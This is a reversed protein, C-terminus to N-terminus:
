TPSETSGARGLLFGWLRRSQAFFDLQLMYLAPVLFLTIVTAFVIGFSLSIAMPIVYQAQLSGELMIPMLGAATTVSTLVIARFRKTGSEIIAQKLPTGAELANNVFSVMILSDNVVVGALAILGFLSFMSVSEGMILHGLVAGIAGFPIVSMIVLPQSYSRLPIAILAYILCLAAISALALNGVFDAEERSAGELGYSVSPFRALLEPMYDESISKIIKAPEVIEPDIDASVTVTRKRNLRTITSYGKGFSMEAVSEFPVEDGEPTRIRMNELDAISRRETIPYRVMVKLEDKGRQIRQAEEGYFAQRVQRGLASITLGLAEAAPKIRLRIEEGGSTSSNRIDYIGQYEALKTELEAAAKELAVNDSGSLEFSLPPGGGIHDADTFTLERVGPIEGVRERWRESIDDGNFPRREDQPLEVFIVGGTDGQTFAGVHQLMPLTDPNEAVYERNMDRVAGEIRELVANRTEPATGTEMELQVRVFDSPVEPFLVVRVLSSALLGICIIMLSFFITVTLGRYEIARALLPQYHNDILAHLGHQVHRQLKTFFRPISELWSIRRQPHFLDDEDIPSIRANALHAPLILKSEVLSFFLCFIVVMSIAEFFPAVIGGVFLMPAFAAMTTLVGFTAPIAVRHAGRIVNELTHGEARIETYISEGIIIADDVVIGLVIIFGFLSLMNITVPWPGLPMLALTGLFAVPIGVVVWGAVKMRLFLSLAIFVLLAGQLMNKTMMELRGRLYHSRDIWIDISVGEPLSASKEDVYARVVDATHLENQQGTALVRLTATPAGDFHGFGETEVFGDEIDAIDALTLRTGDPFTRLVLDGYDMGTYVQGETRLLIDGGTTKIAGGPLDVSTDRIAQSIESMTLGYQRLVHESVEISIEYDRDVLYHVPTVEPFRMLDERVEQAIAKRAYADLDGHLALFVVHVPVEQKYIVPKETLAPFTSIADVRTKVENLVELLDADQSVKVTVSGLGERASGRMETIGQVDQIAEEIKIVVGEEVEQPAAGLYPVRIEITNLEFDPTTQKRITFLSVAGTFLILLMLLNAAVHNAAFWAIIGKQQPPHGQQMTM